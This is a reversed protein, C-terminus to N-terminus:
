VESLNSEADDETRGPVSLEPEEDREDLGLMDLRELGM